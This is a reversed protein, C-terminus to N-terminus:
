PLGNLKRLPNIFNDQINYRTFNLFLLHAKVPYNQTQRCSPTTHHTRHPRQGALCHGLLVLIVLLVLVLLLVLLLLLLLDIIAGQVNIGTLSHQRGVLCPTRGRSAPLSMNQPQQKIERYYYYYFSPINWITGWRPILGLCQLATLMSVPQELQM